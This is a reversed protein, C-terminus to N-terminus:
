LSLRISRLRNSAPEARTMAGAGAAAAGAGLFADTAAVRGAEFGKAFGLV